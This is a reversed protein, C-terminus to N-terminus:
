SWLGIILAMILLSLLSGFTHVFYLKLSKREWIVSGLQTTAYFGLWILFALFLASGLTAAGTLGIMAALIYATIVSALLGSIYSTAMGKKKMEELKEPSIGSHRMWLSGFLGQSYWASGVVTSAIAAVVVALISIDM